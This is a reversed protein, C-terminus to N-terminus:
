GRKSFFLKWIADRVAVTNRRKTLPEAAAPALAGDAATAAGSSWAILTSALPPTHRTPTRTPEPSSRSFRCTRSRGRSSLVPDNPSVGAVIDVRGPRNSTLNWGKVATIPSDHANSMSACLADELAAAPAIAADAPFASVFPSPSSSFSACANTRAMPAAAEASRSPRECAPIEKGGPTARADEDERSKGSRASSATSM